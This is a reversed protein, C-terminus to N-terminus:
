YNDTLNNNCQFGQKNIPQENYFFNGDIQHLDNERTKKGPLVPM